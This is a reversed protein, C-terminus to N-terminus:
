RCIRLLRGDCVRQGAIDWPVGVSFRFPYLHARRSRVEGGAKMPVGKCRHCPRAPPRDDRELHERGM